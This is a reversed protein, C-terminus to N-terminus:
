IGSLSTVTSPLFVRPCRPDGCPFGPIQTHPSMRSPLRWAGSETLRQTQNVLGRRQREKLLPTGPATITEPFWGASAADAEGLWTPQRRHGLADRCSQTPRHRSIGPAEGGVVRLAAPLSPCQPIVRQLTVHPRQAEQSNGQGSSLPPGRLVHAKDPTFLRTLSDLSYVM